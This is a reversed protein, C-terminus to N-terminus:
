SINKFDNSISQVNMEHDNIHNLMPDSSIAENIPIDPTDKEACVEVYARLEAIAYKASEIQQGISKKEAKIKKEGIAYKFHINKMKAHEKKLEDIRTNIENLQVTIIANRRIIEAHIKNLALNENYIKQKKNAIYNGYAGGAVGGITGGILAGTKVAGKKGTLVGVGAGVLSGVIVGCGAGQAITARRDVGNSSFSYNPPLSSFIIFSILVSIGFIKTGKM